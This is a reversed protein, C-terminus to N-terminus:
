SRIAYVGPRHGDRVSRGGKGDSQKKNSTLPARDHNSPFVPTRSDMPLGDPTGDYHGDGVRPSAFTSPSQTQQYEACSPPATTVRPPYGSPGSYGTGNEMCDACVIPFHLGGNSHSHAPTVLGGGPEVRTCMDQRESLTGQSSLYSPVDPPIITEDTNVSCEESKRRTQYIICVWVLSTAVISSVVAIVVIGVTVTSPGTQPTCARGSRQHVSLRSHARETGLPNSMVCTYRGADELAASGIVLLQNGPTFHYRDSPHLPEEGRLWTIRPPPSGLAKCQLAVTEGVIVSRDEMGQVLHPTELVALTVNASITGATNRATCSYVGTDEPKVDMIFFVDDDPMVQMRRERAAPFDTGGDKQWAVQPPPHGRAACELRAKAGARVTVDRPTKVFSPLVSVSLRAKSSYASGFHNSVICQYRGEHEFAVSRLHLVATYDTVAGDPPRPRASSEVKANELPEQDKRWTLTVPVSSSSVAVCTLRVDEGLVAATAAPHATIHPKALDDCVFSQPPAQFISTGQLSSPHACTAQVGAQLGHTVLWEPFWSLQCDCLFSDSRIELSRLKKMKSFAEPLITRIANDGLNLHELAELGSFARKAVSKIRNGFLVLTRLSELGVFAGTADEVAGSIDNHDLVLLRLSSLGRFAGEAIHGLSNHSLHLSQLNVLKMFSGETLKTLNNHALHLERLRECFTWGEPNFSSISNNSLHLQLLNELGYLSGSNVERLNNYDLHLTRMRALGFFAGDTLRSISNKQLKLVELSSLGQFTLGEILRLRNRSLDLQTLQPLELGKVPLQTLRNRSLRLVQLTDALNRFAGFELHVIKNASLLLERIHLGPPFCHERLDLLDNHSLDLTLLHPLNQLRSGQVSAIKNHHLSLYVIPLTGNGFIPLSTLENHELRVERLNPLHSLIDMDAGALHNHSLNLYVTREPLDRPIHTLQTNSCDTTNLTCTCNQACSVDSSLVYSILLKLFLILNFAYFSGIQGPSAAM